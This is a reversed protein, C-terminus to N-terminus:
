DEKRRIRQGKALKIIKGLTEGMLRVRSSM